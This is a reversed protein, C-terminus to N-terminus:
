RGKGAGWSVTDGERIGLQAARGGALELVAGVPEGVAVPDLSYPTTNAAIRAISGDTRVFIIDLPIRTNKMWFSAARPAPFPFIMGENPGLRDRFMLGRSQQEETRAVEVTFDHTGSSGRIQLPVLELGSPAVRAAAAPAAISQPEAQCGALALTALFASRGATM